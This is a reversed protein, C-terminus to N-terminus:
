AIRNQPIDSPFKQVSFFICSKIHMKCFFLFLVHGQMCKAFFFFPIAKCANQIKCSFWPKIHMKECFAHSCANQMKWTCCQKLYIQGFFCSQMCKALFAYSCAIQMKCSFCSKAHMKICALDHMCFDHLEALREEMWRTGSYRCRRRRGKCAAIFPGPPCPQGREAQLGPPPFFALLAGLLM